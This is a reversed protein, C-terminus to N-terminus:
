LAGSQLSCGLLLIGTAAIWSGAVRVAIRMWPQRLQIVFAAVIAIVVFLAAGAGVLQLWGSQTPEMSIGNLWGGGLGFVTAVVAVTSPKLHADAAVLVGPILFPLASIFSPPATRIQCAVLAGIVWAVPLLFLALRGAAAGRLGALLALSIVLVWIEPSPALHGIGDYIPGLGTTVLHAEVSNPSLLVALIIWLPEQQQGMLTVGINGYIIAAAFEIFLLPCVDLKISVRLERPADAISRSGIILFEHSATANCM